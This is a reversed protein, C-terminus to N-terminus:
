PQAGLLRGVVAGFEGALHCRQAEDLAPWVDSAREGAVFEQVVVPTGTARSEPLFARFRVVPVGVESALRTAYIMARTREPDPDRAPFKVLLDGEDTRALWQRSTYGLTTSEISVIRTTPCAEAVADRAQAETVTAESPLGPAARWELM